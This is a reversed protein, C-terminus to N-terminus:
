QEGMWTHSSNLNRQYSISVLSVSYCVVQSLCTLLPSKALGRWVVSGNLGVLVFYIHRYRSPSASTGPDWRKVTHSVCFVEQLSSHRNQSTPLIFISRARLLCGCHKAVSLSLALNLAYGTWRRGFVEMSKNTSDLTSLHLDAIAFVSM